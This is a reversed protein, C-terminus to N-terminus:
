FDNNKSKLCKPCYKIKSFKSIHSFRMKEVLDVNEINKWIEVITKSIPRINPWFTSLSFYIHNMYLFRLNRPATGAYGFPDLFPDFFPTKQVMKQSEFLWIDSNSLFIPSLSRFIFRPSIRPFPGSYLPRTDWEKMDINKFFQFNFHNQVSAIYTPLYM